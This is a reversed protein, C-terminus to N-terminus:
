EEPPTDDPLDDLGLKKMMGTIGERLIFQTILYKERRNLRSFTAIWLERPQASSTLYTAPEEQASRSQALFSAVSALAFEHARGGQVGPRRRKQWNEKAARQNISQETYGTKQALEKPTIWEDNMM